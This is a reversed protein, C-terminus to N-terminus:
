VPSSACVLDLTWTSFLGGEPVERWPTMTPPRRDYVEIELRHTGDETPCVAASCTVTRTPTGDAPPPAYCILRPSTPDQRDYDLFFQLTLEDESDPDYLTLDVDGPSLRNVTWTIPPRMDFGTDDNAALIVPPANVGADGSVTDIPPPVVCAPAAALSTVTLARVVASREHVCRAVFSEVLGKSPKRRFGARRARGSGSMPTVDGRTPKTLRGPDRRM